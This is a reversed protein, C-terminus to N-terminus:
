SIVKIRLIEPDVSGPLAAYTEPLELDKIMNGLCMRIIWENIERDSAGKLECILFDSLRMDFEICLTLRRREFWKWGLISKGDFLDHEISNLFEPYCGICSYEMMTKMEGCIFAEIEGNWYYLKNYIRDYKEEDLDHLHGKIEITREPINFVIGNEKLFISLPTAMGLQDTLKLLGYKRISEGEDIVATIHRLTFKIDSLDCEDFRDLFLDAADDKVWRTRHNRDLMYRRVFELSEETNNPLERLVRITENVSEETPLESEYDFLTDQVWSVDEDSIRYLEQLTNMGTGKEFLNIIMKVILFRKGVNRM